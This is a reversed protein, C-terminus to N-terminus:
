CDEIEEIKAGPHPHSTRPLPYLAKIEKLRAILLPLVERVDGVIGLDAFQFIRAPPDRNIAIVLLSKEMGATYENAGSIGCNVILKPAVSKGTQGIQRDFPLIGADIVPRTAGVTGGIWGALEFILRFGEEKGMGRGGSVVVDAEEIELNGPDAEIVELLRTGPMERPRWSEARVLAEKERDPEDATLVFPLFSLIVTSGEGGALVEEFM